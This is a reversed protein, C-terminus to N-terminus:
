IYRISEYGTELLRITHYGRTSQLLQNKELDQKNVSCTGTVFRIQDVNWGHHQIVDNIVRRLSTYQNETTSKTRLLYRNCDDSMRKFKLICFVGAKNETPPLAVIDDPCM